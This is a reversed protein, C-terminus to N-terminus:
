IYDLKIVVFYSYSGIEEKQQETLENLFPHDALSNFREISSVRVIRNWPTKLINGVEYKEVEDSARTTYAFGFHEFQQQLSAHEEKPFDILM